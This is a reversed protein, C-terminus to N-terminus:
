FGEEVFVNGQKYRNDVYKFPMRRISIVNEAVIFKNLCKDLEFICKWLYDKFIFPKGRLLDNIREGVYGAYYDLIELESLESESAELYGKAKNISNFYISHNRGWESIESEDIFYKYQYLKFDQENLRLIIKKFQYEFIRDQIM